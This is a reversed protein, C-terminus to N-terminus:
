TLSGLLQEIAPRAREVFSVLSTVAALNRINEWSKAVIDKDPPSKSLQSQVTKIEARYNVKEEDSLESTVRLRRDLEELSNFLSVAENRVFNDDGIVVVGSVNGINIGALGDPRHFKSKDDFLEMGQNTIIYKKTKNTIFRRGTGIQSEEVEERVWKAEVLYLLNRIVDDREIGKEKMAKRIDMIGVKASDVSTPKRRKQYLFELIAEMVQDDTFTPKPPKAM